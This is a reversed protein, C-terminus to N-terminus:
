KTAVEPREIRVHADVQCYSLLKVGRPERTQISLPIRLEIANENYAIIPILERHEGDEGLHIIYNHDPTLEWTGGKLKRRNVFTNFSDDLPSYNFELQDLENYGLGWRDFSEQYAYSVDASDPAPYSQDVKIEGYNLLDTFAALDVDAPVISPILEVSLREKVYTGNVVMISNAYLDGKGSKKISFICNTRYLQTSGLAFSGGNLPMPRFGRNYWNNGSSPNLYSYKEETEGEGSVYYQSTNRFGMVLKPDDGFYIRFDEGNAATIRFTKGLLESFPVHQNEGTAPYFVATQSLTDEQFLSVQLGGLPTEKLEISLTEDTVRDPSRVLFTQDRFHFGNNLHVTDGDTTLSVGPRFFFSNRGSAPQNELSFEWTSATLRDEFNQQESAKGCSTCLLLLGMLGFYLRHFM